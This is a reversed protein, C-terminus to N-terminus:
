ARTQTPTVSESWRAGWCARVGVRFALSSRQDRKKRRAELIRKQRGRRWPRATAPHKACATPPSPAGGEQDGLARWAVPRLKRACANTGVATAKGAAVWPTARLEAATEAADGGKRGVGLRATGNVRRARVGACARARANVRRWVLIPCRCWRGLVAAAGVDGHGCRRRGRQSPWWGRTQTGELGAVWPSGKHNDLLPRDGLRRSTEGGALDDRAAAERKLLEDFV